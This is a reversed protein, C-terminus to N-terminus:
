PRGPRTVTSPFDVHLPIVNGPLLLDLGDPFALQGRGSGAVGTGYQWVITDTVPDIIVVRHHYDDVVAVLGNATQGGAIVATAGLVTVAAYRLGLPLAAMTRFTRGDTTAYIEPRPTNGDYGGVLYVTRGVVAASLDSLAVPLHGIV